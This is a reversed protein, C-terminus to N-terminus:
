RASPRPAVVPRWREKPRWAGLVAGSAGAWVASSLAMESPSPDGERRHISAGAASLAAAVLAPMLAGDLAARWRPPRGGSLYVSRIAARPIRLSAAGPQVLLLLTDARVAEITGIISQERARGLRVRDFKSRDAAPFEVRVRASAPVSDLGQGEAMTATSAFLGVLVAVWSEYLNLRPM